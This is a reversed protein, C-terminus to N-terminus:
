KNVFFRLWISGLPPPYHFSPLFASPSPFIQHAQLNKERRRKRRRWFEKSHLFILQFHLYLVKQKAGFIIRKKGDREKRPSCFISSSSSSSSFQRKSGSQSRRSSKKHHISDLRLGFHFHWGIKCKNCCALFNDPLTEEFSIGDGGLKNMSSHSSFSAVICRSIQRWKKASIHAYLLFLLFLSFDTEYRKMAPGNKRHSVGSIM